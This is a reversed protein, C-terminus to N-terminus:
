LLLKQADRHTQHSAPLNGAPPSANSHASAKFHTAVDYVREIQRLNWAYACLNDKPPTPQRESASLITAGASDRNNERPSEKLPQHSISPRLIHWIIKNEDKEEQGQTSARPRLESSKKGANQGKRVQGDRGNKESARTHTIVGHIQRATSKARVSLWWHPTAELKPM